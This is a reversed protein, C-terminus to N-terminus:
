FLADARHFLRHLVVSRRVEFGSGLKRFLQLICNPFHLLLGGIHSTLSVTKGLCQGPFRLYLSTELHSSANDKMAKEMASISEKLPKLIGDMTTQNGESLEKERKRLLKETEATMSAVVTEKMQVLAKDYNAQAQVAMKEMDKIRREHLEEQAQVRAKYYSRTILWTITGAAVAVGATIITM